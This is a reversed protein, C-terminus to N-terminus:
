DRSPAILDGDYVACGVGFNFLNSAAPANAAILSADSYGTIREVLYSGYAQYSHLDIRLIGSNDFFTIYLHQRNGCLGYPESITVNSGSSPESLSTSQCVGPQGLVISLALTVGDLRRVICNDKEAMFVNSSDDVWIDYPAQALELATTSPLSDLSVSTSDTKPIDSITGLLLNVFRVRQNNVDAIYLSQSSPGLHIANIGSNLLAATAPGGNGGFGCISCQGAVVYVRLDSPDIKRVCCSDREVFYVTGDSSVAVSAVDVLFSESALAGDAMDSGQGAITTILGTARDIKRIYYFEAVYTNGQADVAVDSPLNIVASLALGGDGRNEASILSLGVPTNVLKDRAINYQTPRSTPQSTPQSSPEGITALLTGKFAICTFYRVVAM